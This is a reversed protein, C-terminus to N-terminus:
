KTPNIFKANSSREATLHKAQFAELHQSDTYLHKM